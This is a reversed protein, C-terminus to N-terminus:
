AAGRRRRILVVLGYAAFPLLALYCWWALTQWKANRSEIVEFDHQQRPAYLGAMCAVRAAAVLPACTRDARVYQQARQRNDSAAERETLRPWDVPTTCM